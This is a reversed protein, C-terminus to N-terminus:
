EDSGEKKLIVKVIAHGQDDYSFSVEEVEVRPEYKEIKEIIETAYDNELDAPLQSLGAWSLGLDRALPISGMPISLINKICKGINEKESHEFKGIYMFDFDM